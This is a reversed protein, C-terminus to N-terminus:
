SPNFYKDEAHKEEWEKMQDEFNGTYEYELEDKRIAVDMASEKRSMDRLESESLGGDVSRAASLKGNEHSFIKTASFHTGVAM